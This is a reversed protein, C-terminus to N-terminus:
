PPSPRNFTFCGGVDGWGPLPYPQRWHSPAKGKTLRSIGSGLIDINDLVGLLAPLALRVLGITGAADAAVLVGGRGSREEWRLSVSLPRLCFAGRAREERGPSTLRLPSKLLVRGGREERRLSVSLARLSFGELFGLGRGPPSLQLPAGSLLRRGRNILSFM